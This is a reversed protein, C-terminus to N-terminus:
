QWNSPLENLKMALGYLNEVKSYLAKGGQYWQYTQITTACLMYAVILTKTTGWVLRIVAEKGLVQVVVTWGYGSRGDRGDDGYEACSAALWRLSRQPPGSEPKSGDAAWLVLM